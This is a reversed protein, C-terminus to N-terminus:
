LNTGVLEPIKVTFSGKFDMGRSLRAVEPTIKIRKVSLLSVMAAAVHRVFYNGMEFRLAFPQM